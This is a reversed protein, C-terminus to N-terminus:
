QAFFTLGLRSSPSMSGAFSAYEICKSVTGDCCFKFTTFQAFCEDFMSSCYVSDVRPNTNTEFATDCQAGCYNSTCNCHFESGVEQICQGGNQCPNITCPNAVVQCDTGDYSCSPVNCAAECIGNSVMSGYCGPYCMAPSATTPPIIVTSPMPPPPASPQCDGGDFDCASVNCALNCQGDGVTGTVCSAACSEIQNSLDAGFWATCDYETNRCWFVLAWGRGHSDGGETRSCWGRRLPGNYIASYAQGALLRDYNLLDMISITMQDITPTRTEFSAFIDVASFNLVIDAHNGITINRPCGISWGCTENQIPPNCVHTHDQAPIGYFFLALCLHFILYM